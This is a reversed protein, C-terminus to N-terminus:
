EDLITQLEDLDITIERNVFHMRNKSNTKFNEVFEINQTEEAKGLIFHYKLGVNNALRWHPFPNGYHAFDFELFELVKAGTQMFMINSFGAGHNSIFWSANNMFLIQDWISFDEFCLVQFGKEVLKMEVDQENKLGRVGRKKRSLYIKDHFVSLKSHKIAYFILKNRVRSISIPDFYSTYERTEPLILNRVFCNYDNPIVEIKFNFISMTEKVYSLNYISEPILLTFNQDKSQELLLCRNMSDNIWFAYNFWKSHVIAYSGDNYNKSKLSRGFKCVLYQELIKKWYVFYFNIDKKGTLNYGSRKELLFKSLVLGDQSIFAKSIRKLKPIKVSYNILNKFLIKYKENINYPYECEIKM